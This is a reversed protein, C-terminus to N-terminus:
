EVEAKSKLWDLWCQRCNGKCIWDAPRKKEKPLASWCFPCCLMRFKDALEEDSMARVRDANTPKKRNFFEDPDNKRTECGPCVQRGEPIEAGCTVCTNDSM